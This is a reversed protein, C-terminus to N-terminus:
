GREFVISGVILNLQTKNKRILESPQSFVITLINLFRKKGIKELLVKTLM